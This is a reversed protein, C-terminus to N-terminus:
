DFKIVSRVVKGAKMNEFGDNIQDLSIVDSVWDDLQLRGADRLQMIATALERQNTEQQQM